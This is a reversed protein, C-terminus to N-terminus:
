TAAELDLRDLAPFAPFPPVVRAGGVALIAAEIVM